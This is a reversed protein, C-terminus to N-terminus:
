KNWQCNIFSSKYKKFIAINRKLRTKHSKIFNNLISSLDEPVFCEKVLSKYIM